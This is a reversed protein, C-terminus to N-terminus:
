APCSVNSDPCVHRHPATTEKTHGAPRISQQVPPMRLARWTPGVRQKLQSELSQVQCLQADTDLCIEQGAPSESYRRAAGAQDEQTVEQSPTSPELIANNM